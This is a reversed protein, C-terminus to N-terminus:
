EDQHPLVQHRHSYQLSTIPTAHKRVRQHLLAVQSFPRWTEPEKTVRQREGFLGVILGADLGALRNTLWDERALLTTVEGTPRQSRRSTIVLTKTADFWDPRDPHRTLHAGKLLMNSPLTVSVGQDLSCDAENSSWNYHQEAPHAVLVNGDADRGTQVWAPEKPDGDADLNAYIDNMISQFNDLALSEDVDSEHDGAPRPQFDPSWLNALEALMSAQERGSSLLQSVLKAVLADRSPAPADPLSTGSSAHDAADRDVHRIEHWSDLQDIDVEGAVQADPYEALYIHPPRRAQPMWTPILSRSQLFDMAAECQQNRVIWGYIHHWQEAQGSRGSFGKGDETDSVLEYLVIWRVGNDDTRVSIQELNPLPDDGGIWDHVHDADPLHPTPPTWFADPSDNPFTARRPDDAPSVDDDDDALPHAAPPLSPDLDRRLMQWGIVRDNPQDEYGTDVHYHNVLREGLEHLAMWQYKKGIREAKHASSVRRPLYADFSGFRQPSWGLRAARAVIWRRASQDDLKTDFLNETRSPPTKCARLLEYQQDDLVNRAIWDRRLLRRVGAEHGLTDRAEQPLSATFALVKSRRLPATQSHKGPRPDPRPSSVPLKRIDAIAPRIHSSGFTSFESLCRTIPSWDQDGTGASPYRADVEEQTPARGPRRGPHPHDAAAAEASTITQLLLARDIIGRAANCLLANTSAHAPGSPDGYVEALILRALRGTAALDAHGVRLVHGYAVLVLREFLYADDVKRADDRLFRVLLGELVAPFGLLLQVLAKTARDRLFRNSSTLSWILTTAALRVVEDPPEPPLRAPTTRTGARRAKLEVGSPKEEIRLRQPTPIQETWRLLRHLPGNDHLASYIHTGWWADRDSRRLQLLNRHLRDANLPHESESTVAIWADLAEAKFHFRQLAINILAITRPTVSGPTRLALTTLLSRFLRRPRATTSRPQATTDTDAKLIDILEQGTLEPLLATAAEQLTPSAAQLWQRLPASADLKHGATLRAVDDAHESLVARVIRDDSFAQYTFGVGARPEEHPASYRNTAIVGHAQLKSLMTNPHQTRDPAFANVITRAEDRDLVENHTEAMRVALADIAHHVPLSAPDLQLQDCILESRSDVFLEFVASRHQHGSVAVPQHSRQARAELSQSYLKVFLPNSFEPVLLPTRPLAHPVDHLYRELAETERGSFGQHITTPLGLREKNSPVAVDQLTTRCSFVIAVHPYDAIRSLLIPIQTKWRRPEDSDNIADIELLFRGQSAAGASDLAQLFEDHGLDGLGLCRAIETLPDAGTLQEGLIVVALRGDALAKSAGDLLLHTKGQGAEGLLLWAGSEALRAAESWLTELMQDIARTATMWSGSDKVIATLAQGPTHRGTRTYTSGPEPETNGGPTETGQTLNAEAAQLSAGAQLIQEGLEALAASLESGMEALESTPVGISLDLTHAKAAWEASLAAAHYGMATITDVTDGSLPGTPASADVAASGYRGCWAQWGSVADAVAGPVAEARRTLRRRFGRGVTLGELAAASPLEVHREPTYRADAIVGATKLHAACWSPGLVRENFFFWRRGENGPETLRELLEGGGVFDIEIDGVGPLERKWKAVAELWRARASGPAQGAKQRANPAPEPMDFPAYFTLKVVNRFARNAGVAKVTAQGHKILGAVDGVFKAQGGHAQGDPALDYWEVGGDPDGTKVTKWGAPAPQRVQFTLEEFARFKSGDWERLGAWSQGPGSPEKPSESPM